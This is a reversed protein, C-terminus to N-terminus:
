GFVVMNQESLAVPTGDPAWLLGSQSTYGDCAALLRGDFRWGRLPWDPRPATLLELMWTVSSGAAPAPLFSLAIPPILDAFALVHAEGVPGADHLEIEVVNEPSTSGTFPLGGRLWQSSFHQTFDPTVGPIFPLVIAQANEVPPRTPALAVSSPRAAGFVGVALCLTTAGDVLRAEVHMANKGSRLLQARARVAGAPVPALFTTQLARLPLGAPALERMARVCLAAQLGGFLSRGQLWDDGATAVWGDGDPKMSQLVDSFRM